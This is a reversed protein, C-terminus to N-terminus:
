FNCANGGHDHYSDCCISSYCLTLFDIDFSHTNSKSAMQGGALNEPDARLDRATHKLMWSIFTGQEDDDDLSKEESYVKELTAKLIPDLLKGGRASYQKVSRIEPLFPVVFRRLYVPWKAIANRAKISDMTYNISADIWEENRSLPRGVFVRGSLLAVIRAMAGYLVVPTWDQCPGLEKNFSYRIEEQLGDLTSAIHRTLDIKVAQIVERRDKGIGTHESMFAEAIFKMFSVQTEPLNRVEDLIKIPLIVTPRKLPIV